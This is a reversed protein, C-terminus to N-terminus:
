CYQGVRGGVLVCCDVLFMGDARTTLCVTIHWPMRGNGESTRMFTRTTNATGTATTKKIIKNCHKTTDNGLEDMNYIVNPPIDSYKQWPLKGATNLIEIYANLKFFM